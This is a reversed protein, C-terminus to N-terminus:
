VTGTSSNSQKGQLRENAEAPGEKSHAPPPSSLIGTREASGEPKPRLPKAEALRVDILTSARAAFSAVMNALFTENTASLWRAAEELCRKAEALCKAVNEEQTKRKRM